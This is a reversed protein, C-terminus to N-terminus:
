FRAACCRLRKGAVHGRVHFRMRVAYTANQAMLRLREGHPQTGSDGKLTRSAAPHVRQIFM